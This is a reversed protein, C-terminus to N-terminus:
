SRVACHQAELDLLMREFPCPQVCGHPCGKERIENVLAQATGAEVAADAVCQRIALALANLGEQTDVHYFPVGMGKFWFRAGRCACDGSARIVNGHTADLPYAYRPPLGPGTAVWYYWARRFSWGHLGGQIVTRMEPHEGRTFEPMRCVSIGAQELEAQIESDKDAQGAYNNV